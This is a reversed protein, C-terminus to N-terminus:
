IRSSKVNEQHKNRVTIIEGNNHKLKKKLKVGHVKVHM